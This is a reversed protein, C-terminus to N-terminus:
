KRQSVTITNFHLDCKGECAVLFTGSEEESTQIHAIDKGIKNM